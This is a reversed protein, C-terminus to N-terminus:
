RMVGLDVGAWRLGSWLLLGLAAVLLLWPWVPARLSVPRPWLQRPEPREHRPLEREVVGNELSPDLVDLVLVTANDPGGHELARRVLRDAVLQPERGGALNAFEAVPVVNWVGDTVLLFRDGPEVPVVEEDVECDVQGGGICRTLLSEGEHAIHDTTLPECRGARVRYLRTDGVHGIVARGAELCLATLTTGMDRLAPVATASEHVRQQASHFGGRMGADAAAGAGDGDGDLLSAGLARLATRSAEAGGAVGGMGDAIAAVVRTGDSRQQAALLYDDENGGRLLGTHSSVGLAIGGPVKV